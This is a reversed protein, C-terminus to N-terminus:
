PYLNPVLKREKKFQSKSSFDSPKDVMHRYFRACHM